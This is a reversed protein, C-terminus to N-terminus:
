RNEWREYTGDGDPLRVRTGPQMAQDDLGCQREVAAAAAAQQALEALKAREAAALKEQHAQEVLEAKAKAILREVEAQLDTSALEAVNVWEFQLIAVRALNFGCLM